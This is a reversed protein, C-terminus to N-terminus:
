GITQSDSGTNMCTKYWQKAVKVSPIEDGRLELKLMEPFDNKKKENVKPFALEGLQFSVRSKENTRKMLHPECKGPIRMLRFHVRDRGIAAHMNM